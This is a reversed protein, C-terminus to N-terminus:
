VKLNLIAKPYNEMIPIKLMIVIEVLTQYSQDICCKPSVFYCTGRGM